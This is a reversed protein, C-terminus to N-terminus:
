QSETEAMYRLETITKTPHREKLAEIKDLLMISANKDIQIKKNHKINETRGNKRKKKPMGLVISVRSFEAVSMKNKQAIKKLKNSSRGRERELKFSLGLIGFLHPNLVKTAAQSKWEGLEDKEKIPTISIINAKKLATMARFGRKASLNAEKALYDTSFNKFGDKTPFGIRMCAFHTRHFIVTMLRVIAERAESRQQRLKQPSCNAFKLHPLIHPKWYYDVFREASLACFEMYTKTNTTFDPNHPNHGCKNGTPITIYPQTGNCVTIYSQTFISSEPLQPSISSM